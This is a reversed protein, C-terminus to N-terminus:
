IGNKNIYEKVELIRKNVQKYVHILQKKTIERKKYRDIVKILDDFHKLFLNYYQEKTKICNEKVKELVEKFEKEEERMQKQAKREM